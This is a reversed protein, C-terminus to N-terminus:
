GGVRAAHVERAAIALAEESLYTRSSVQRVTTRGIALVALEELLDRDTKGPVEARLEELLDTDIEITTTHSAGM